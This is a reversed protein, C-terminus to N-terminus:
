SSARRCRRRGQRRPEDVRRAHRAGEADRPGRHRRAARTAARACRPTASSACPRGREVSGGLQAAMTQMGYCIGLVPVGLTSCRQPARPADARRHGVRPRRLPHHGQPASARAIEDASQRVSPDRLLRRGRARPARDAAHVARRLRPHPDPRRPHGRHSRLPCHEGSTPGRTCTRSVRRPLEASGQHDARRARPERARRREHDRVFKPKRACRTSTAAASTAWRRACAASSSTSSRSSRARTRCAARSAKPCSSTPTARRRGPLLPRGLGTQMAGLSGM